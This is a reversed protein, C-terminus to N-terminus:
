KIKWNSLELILKRIKTFADIMDSDFDDSFYEPNDKVLKIYYNCEAVILSYAEQKTM